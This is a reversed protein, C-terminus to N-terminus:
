DNKLRIAPIIYKELIKFPPRKTLYNGGTFTVVTNLEPFVMIHQGGFGTASYMHIPKGKKYYTKTWWSYSYGMRGSAEGPINIRYNGSFPTASKEIWKGPVIQKGDWVGGNLFTAGFKVMTRPTIMLNNGDVGNEFKVAWFSSDVQLPAFLHRTSFEDISMNTANHIIEGLLIMNGSSYNFDMGPESVLPMDLIFTIPDKEQFWIGITPNDASSYPASWEKWELGSTMTLLHEITIKDKGGTSLHTHDPLYDFISRHVSEIYGKDIAIGICASTISKTASMINHLMNRDWLVNEGHHYPADWQWKHGEFYEEFVLKGDKFILMSHVEKYRGAMILNVADEIDKVDMSVEKLSGVDLGDKIKEPPLYSYQGSTDIHCGIHLLSLISIILINKTM